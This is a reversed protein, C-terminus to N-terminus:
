FKFSAEVGFVRGESPFAAINDAANAGAPLPGTFATSLVAGFGAYAENLLNRGYFSISIKDNYLDISTAADLSHFANLQVRNADDGFSGDRYSYNVRARFKASETVPIEYAAGIGYSWPSLRPLQLNYDTDTISGAV